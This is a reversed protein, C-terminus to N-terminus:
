STENKNILYRLAHDKTKILKSDKLSMEIHGIKVGFPEDNIINIGKFARLAGNFIYVYDRDKRIKFQSDYNIPSLGFKNMKYMVGNELYVSIVSDSNYLQITNIVEQLHYKNINISTLNIICFVM